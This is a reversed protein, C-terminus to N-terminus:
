GARTEKKPDKNPDSVDATHGVEKPIARIGARRTAGGDRVVTPGSREYTRCSWGDLATAATHDFGFRALAEDLPSPDPGGAEGPDLLGSVIVARASRSALM